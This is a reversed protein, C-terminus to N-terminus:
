PTMKSVAERRTKGDLPDLISAHNVDNAIEEPKKGDLTLAMSFSTRLPNVFGSFM